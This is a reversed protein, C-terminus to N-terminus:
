FIGSISKALQAELVPKAESFDLNVKEANSVVRTQYTMRNGTTKVSQNLNSGAGQALSASRTTDVAGETKQSIQLDTIMSYNIDKVMADAVAGALGSAAGIGLIGGTGVGNFAAIGAGLAAGTFAGQYGTNMISLAERADMKDAKLVNVQVWYQAAEPSTPHYGKAQLQSQIQSQLDSMDKDSTNHVDIYVSKDSSPQLWISQSMQTKVDLNRKSIATNVASCGSLAVASAVCLTVLLQKKMSM